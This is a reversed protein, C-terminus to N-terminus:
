VYKNGQSDVDVGAAMAPIHSTFTVCPDRSIYENESKDFQTLETVM